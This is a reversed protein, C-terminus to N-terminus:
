PAEFADPEVAETLSLEIARPVGVTSCGLASSQADVTARYRDGLRDITVIARDICMGSMWVLLVADGREPVALVTTEGSVYAPPIEAPTAERVIGVHDVVTVPLAPVGQRGPITLQIGAPPPLLSCGALLVAVLVVGLSRMTSDGIGIRNVRRPAAPMTSGDLLTRTGLAMRLSVAVSVEPNSPCDANGLRRLVLTITVTADTEVVVLALMRSGPSRDWRM